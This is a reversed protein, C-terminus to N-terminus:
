VNEFESLSVYDLAYNEYSVGRDMDKDFAYVMVIPYKIEKVWEQLKVNETTDEPIPNGEEDVDYLWEGKEDFVSEWCDTVPLLGLMDAIHYASSAYYYNKHDRWHTYISWAWNRYETENHLLKKDM